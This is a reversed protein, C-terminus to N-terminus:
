SVKPATPPYVTPSLTLPAAGGGVPRGAFFPLHRGIMRSIEYFAVAARWHAVAADGSSQRAAALLMRQVHQTAAVIAGPNSPLRAVAALASRVGEELPASLTLTDLVRHLKIVEHAIRLTALGGEVYDSRQPRNVLRTSLRALRDQMRSLVTGPRKRGGGYALWAVDACMDRVLRRAVRFTDVPWLIRFVVTVIAIGAVMAGTSNLFGALDYSMENRPSVFVTFFILFGTFIGATRPTVSLLIGLLIFPSLALALLPFGNSLAMMHFECVYAAVAALAVGKAFGLTAKDPQDAAGMLACAPLVGAMMMAGQPWATVIWFIGSALTALMARGGNVLAQRKDRHYTVPTVTEGSRGAEIASLLEQAQILEVVVGDLRSALALSGLMDLDAEDDGGVPAGDAPAGDEHRPATMATVAQTGMERLGALRGVMDDSLFGGITRIDRLLDRVADCYEVLPRPLGSGGGHRMAEPASTALTLIGSMVSVFLRVAPAEQATEASESAAAEILGDLSTLRETLMRQVPDLGAAGTTAPDPARDPDAAHDLAQAALTATGVLGGALAPRLRQRGVHLSLVGKVLACCVVGVTVVAVRGFALQFIHLPAEAAPLAVLSLTYGALVAAYARFYRLLSSVYVCLGMWVSLVIIFLMPTQSFLAIMTISMVVGAVTGLFRWLGKSLVMGHLPGSVIVVTTLASGPSDLQAFFAVYLALLGAALTGWAHVWAQPPPWWSAVRGATKRGPLGNFLRRLVSWGALDPSRGPSAIASVVDAEAM